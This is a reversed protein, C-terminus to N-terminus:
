GRWRRPYSSPYPVPDPLKCIAPWDPTLRNRYPNGYFAAAVKDWELCHEEGFDRDAPLDMLAKFLKFADPFPYNVAWFKKFSRDFIAWLGNPQLTLILNHRYDM